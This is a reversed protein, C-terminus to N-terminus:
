SQVGVPGMALLESPIEVEGVHPIDFADNPLVFVASFTATPLPNGYNDSLPGSPPKHTAAIKFGRATPAIRIFAKVRM